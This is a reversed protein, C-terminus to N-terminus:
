QSSNNKSGPAGAAGTQSSNSKNSKTTTTTTPTYTTQTQQSVSTNTKSTNQKVSSNTTSTTTNNNVAYPPFASDNTSLSVSSVESPMGLAYIGFGIGIIFAVILLSIAILNNQSFGKKNDLKKEKLGPSTIFKKFLADNEGDDKTAVPTEATKKGQLRM